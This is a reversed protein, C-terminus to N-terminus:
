CNSPFVGGGHTFFFFFPSTSNGNQTSDSHFFCCCGFVALVFLFVSHYMLTYVNLYEAFCKKSSFVHTTITRNTTEDLLNIRFSWHQAITHIVVELSYMVRNLQHSDRRFSGRENDCCLQLWCCPMILWLTERFWSSNGREWKSSCMWDHCWLCM